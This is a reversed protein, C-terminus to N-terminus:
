WPFASQRQGRSFQRRDYDRRHAVLCFLLSTDRITSRSFEARHGSTQFSSSSPYECDRFELCSSQKAGSIEVHRRSSESSYSDFGFRSQWHFSGFWSDDTLHLHVLPFGLFSRVSISLSKELATTTKCLTFEHDDTSYRQVDNWTSAYQITAVPLRLSLSTSDSCPLHWNSTSQFEYGLRLLLRIPFCQATPLEERHVLIGFLIPAEPFLEHTSSNDTFYLFGAANSASAVSSTFSLGLHRVFSGSLCYDIKGGPVAIEVKRPMSTSKNFTCCFIPSWNKPDRWTKKTSSSFWNMKLSLRYVVRPFSGRRMDEPVSAVM